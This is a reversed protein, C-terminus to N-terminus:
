KPDCLTLMVPNAYCDSAPNLSITEPYGKSRGLMGYVSRGSRKTKQKV